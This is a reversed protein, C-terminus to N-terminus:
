QEKARNKCELVTRPRERAPPSAARVLGLLAAKEALERRVRQESLVDEPFLRGCCFRQCERGGLHTRWFQTFRFEYLEKGNVLFDEQLRLSLSRRYALGPRSLMLGPWERNIHLQLRWEVALREFLAELAGLKLACQRM